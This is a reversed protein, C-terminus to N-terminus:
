LYIKSEEKVTQNLVLHRDLDKSKDDINILDMKTSNYTKYLRDLKIEEDIKKIIVNELM